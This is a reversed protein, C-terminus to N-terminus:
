PSKLYRRNHTRWLRVFLRIREWYFGGSRILTGNVGAFAESEGQRFGYRTRKQAGQLTDLDAVDAISRHAGFVPGSETM